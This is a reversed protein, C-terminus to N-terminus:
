KISVLYVTTKFLQFLLSVLVIGTGKPLEAVVFQFINLISFFAGTIILLIRQGFLVNLIEVNDSLLSYLAKLHHGNWNTKIIARSLYEQKIQRKLCDFRKSLVKLLDQLIMISGLKHIQVLVSYSAGTVNIAVSTYQHVLMELAINIVFHILNLLIFKLYYSSSITSKINTVQAINSDFKEFNTFLEKWAKGQFFLDKITVFNFLIVTLIGAFPIILQLPASGNYSFLLFYTEIFCTVGIIYCLIPLAYILKYYEKYPFTFLLNYLAAVNRLLIIDQEKRFM